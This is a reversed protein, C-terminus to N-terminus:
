CTKSLEAPEVGLCSWALESIFDCWRTRADKSSRQAAKGHTHGATRVEGIKEPVNHDRSQFMMAALDREREREEFAVHSSM